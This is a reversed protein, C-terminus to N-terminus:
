GIDKMGDLEQANAQELLSETWANYDESAKHNEVAAQWAPVDQGVFYMVHYGIYSGENYVIGTDGTKRAPDFCWDNFEAVMQGKTIKTYLGGKTNSGGDDSLENALAAFADETGGNAQWQALADEAKAKAGDKLAQLDADYTESDKDLSSSDVRFLIHRVDVTNYEERGISHFVVLYSNPDDEVVAGEGATRASDFVWASMASGNNSGADVSGYSGLDKLDESIEALSEGNQYRELAAKAAAAAANKAAASEEETPQVTNGDADTTSPASGKFYIYEYSAVNFTAPHAQYDAELEDVTYTLNEQYHQMYHSAVEEMTLMEEFLSPTMGQGYALKLYSKLSYGEPKLSAKLEAIAEQVEAKMADDAGMGNAEAAKVAMVRLSLQKVAYEKLFQDWTVDGEDTVQLLMKATDNMVQQTLPKSNDLGYYGAKAISNALGRYYYSVQAATYNQGDITVADPDRYLVGSKVVLLLAAVVVFVVAITGYLRNAKRLKAQEEAERIAKPDKIGQSALDQRNKKERSASMQKM